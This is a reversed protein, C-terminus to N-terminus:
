NAKYSFFEIQSWSSSSKYSILHENKKGHLTNVLLLDNRDGNGFGCHVKEFNRAEKGQHSNLDDGIFVKEM